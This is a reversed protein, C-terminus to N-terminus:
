AEALAARGAPTLLYVDIEHWNAAPHRLKDLWTVLGGDICEKLGAAMHPPVLSRDVPVGIKDRESRMDLIARAEKSITM